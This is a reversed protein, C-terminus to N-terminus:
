KCLHKIELIKLLFNDIVGAFNANAKLCQRANSIEKLINVVALQSMTNSLVMLENKIEQNRVIDFNNNKISIIDRYIVELIDFFM